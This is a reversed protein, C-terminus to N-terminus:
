RFVVVVFKIEGGSKNTLTHTIGAPTYEVGGSKVKREVVGKGVVDDSLTYDTLAIIMHDTDHSHRTTVAGAGMTVDEVCMKATCLLYKESVCATKSGPNCYRSPAPHKKEMLGQPSTFEVRVAQATSDSSNTLPAAQGAPSFFLSGPAEKSKPRGTVMVTLVDHASTNAATGRSPIEVRSVTVRANKLIPEGASAGPVQASVLVSSLCLAVAAALYKM